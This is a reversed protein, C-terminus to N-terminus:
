GGGKAGGSVLEVELYRSGVICRAEGEPVIDLVQLSLNRRLSEEVACLFEDRLRFCRERMELRLAALAPPYGMAAWLLYHLAEDVVPEPALEPVENTVCLSHEEDASVCLQTYAGVSELVDLEGTVFIMDGFPLGIQRFGDLGGSTALM